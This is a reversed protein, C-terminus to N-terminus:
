TRIRNSGKIPIGMRVRSQTKFTHAHWNINLVRLLFDAPSRRAAGRLRFTTQLWVITTPSRTRRARAREWEPRPTRKETKDPPPQKSRPAADEDGHRPSETTKGQAERPQSQNKPTHGRETPAVGNGGAGKPPTTSTPPRRRQKKTQTPAVENGGRAERPQKAKTNVALSSKSNTQQISMPLHM